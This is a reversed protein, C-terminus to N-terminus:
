RHLEQLRLHSCGQSKRSKSITQQSFYLHTFLEAARGVSLPFPSLPQKLALPFDIRVDTPRAEHTIAQSMMPWYPTASLRFTMSVDFLFSPISDAAKKTDCPLNLTVPPIKM